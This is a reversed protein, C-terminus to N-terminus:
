HVIAPAVPAPTTSVADLARLRETATKVLGEAKMALDLAAGYDVVAQLAARAAPLDARATDIDAKLLLYRLRRPGYSLRIADDIAVRAEDFRQLRFLASALRARPEYDDPIAAARAQLLTVAEAGRGLAFLSNMRAYDHVQAQQETTTKAVADDLLRLRQAHMAEAGDPNGLTAELEALTAMGDARDDVAAGAPPSTILAQLDVRAQNRLRRQQASDTLKDVCALLAGQLDFAAGGAVEDHHAEIFRVCGAPDFSKVRAWAAALVVDGRRPDDVGITALADDFAAVAGDIAGDALAAHARALAVDAPQPTHAQHRAVADQVFALTAPLSMSGPHMALPPGDPLKPDLVFFTPWLSVPHAKLFSANVPRDTDVAAFVVRDAFAGLAATDLVGHQMSLCTHCWPAWADVFLLKQEALALATATALDDHIFTPGAHGSVPAAPPPTAAPSRSCGIGM